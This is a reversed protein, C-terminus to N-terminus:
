VNPRMVGREFNELVEWGVHFPWYLAVRRPCEGPMGTCGEKSREAGARGVQFISLLRQRLSNCTPGKLQCGQGAVIQGCVM